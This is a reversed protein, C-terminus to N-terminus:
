VPSLRLINPSVGAREKGLDDNRDVTGVSRRARVSVKSGPGTPVLYPFEYVM